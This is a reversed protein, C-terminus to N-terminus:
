NSVSESVRDYDDELRVIDDERLVSGQQIELICAPKSGPNGLRHVMRAPVVATQMLGLELVTQGVIANVRGAICIWFESRHMHYQLSLRHGPLIEILKIKIGAQEHIVTWRGWPRTDSMESPIVPAPQKADAQHLQNRSVM